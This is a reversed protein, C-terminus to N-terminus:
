PVLKQLLRNISQYGHCGWFICIGVAAGIVITHANDFHDVTIMDANSSFDINHVVERFVFSIGHSFLNIGENARVFHCNYGLAVTGKAAIHEVQQARLQADIDVHDLHVFLGLVAAFDV